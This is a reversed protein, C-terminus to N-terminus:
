KIGRVIAECLITLFVGFILLTIKTLNRNMKELAEKLGEVREEALRLREKIPPNGNGIYFDQYMKEWKKEDM